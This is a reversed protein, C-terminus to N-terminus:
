NKSLTTLEIENEEKIDEDTNDKELHINFDYSPDPEQDLDVTIINKFIKDEIFKTQSNINKTFSPIKRISSKQPKTNLQIKKMDLRIDKPSKPILKQIPTPPISISPSTLIEPTNQSPSPTRNLFSKVRSFFPPKIPAEPKTEGYIITHELKDLIEPKIINSKAFESKFNSIIENSILPRSNLLREYEQRTSRVYETAPRRFHREIALEIKIDRHLKGWDVSATYNSESQQAYRFFNQLTTVIGTLINVGGIVVQGTKIFDAPLISDLSMSLTGTITSFIIVPISFRFNLSSLRRYAKDFIWTYCLAIDAWSVLLKETNDNWELDIFFDSVNSDNTM